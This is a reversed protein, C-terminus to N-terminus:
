ALVQHKTLHGSCTGGGQSRWVRAPTSMALSVRSEGERESPETQIGFIKIKFGQTFGEQLVEGLGVQELGVLTCPDM